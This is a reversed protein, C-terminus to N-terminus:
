VSVFCWIYGVVGVVLPPYGGFCFFGASCGVAGYGGASFGLLWWVFTASGKSGLVLSLWCRAIEGGDDEFGALLGM